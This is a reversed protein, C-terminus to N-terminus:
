FTRAQDRVGGCIVVVNPVSAMACVNTRATFRRGRDDFPWPSLRMMGSRDARAISRADDFGKRDALSLFLTKEM